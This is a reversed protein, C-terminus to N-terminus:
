REQTQMVALGLIFMPLGIFVLFVTMMLMWGTFVLGFGVAVVLLRGLLSAVSFESRAERHIPAPPVTEELRLQEIPRTILREETVM